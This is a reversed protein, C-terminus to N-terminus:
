NSFRITYIRGGEEVSEVLGKGRLRAMTRSKDVSDFIGFESLESSKMKMEDKSTIYKLIAFEQDTIQHSELAFSLTPVLLKETVYDIGLLKDIKEIENKLGRLFYESWSLVDASVLSDARNLQEYYEDRNAYFVASPNIIRGEKVRFGSKILLAYNLM